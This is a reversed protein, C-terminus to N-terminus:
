LKFWKYEDGLREEMENDLIDIIASRINRVTTKEAEFEAPLPMSPLYERFIAEIETLRKNWETFKSQIKNKLKWLQEYEKWVNKEVIDEKGM